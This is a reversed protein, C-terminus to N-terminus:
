LCTGRGSGKKIIAPHEVGHVLLNIRYENRGRVMVM